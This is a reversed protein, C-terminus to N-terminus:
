SLQSRCRRGSHSSRGPDAAVPRIRRGEFHNTSKLPVLVARVEVSQYTLPEFDMAVGGSSWYLGRPM